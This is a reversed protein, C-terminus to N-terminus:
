ATADVQPVVDTDVGASSNTEASLDTAASSDRGVSSAELKTPKADSAASKASATGDTSTTTAAAFSQLADLASVRQHPDVTLLGRLLCLLPAHEAPAVFASLPKTERLHRKSDAKLDHTRVPTVGAIVGTGFGGSSGGDAGSTANSTDFYKKRHPSKDVVQTPFAGLTAEMLALHEHNGHTAFLLDGRYLEAIICGASWCDSPMSWGLGLIVEPARYQRTNVISSKHEHEYTAGGFDIVKIRTSAPVLVKSGYGNEVEHEGEVTLALV